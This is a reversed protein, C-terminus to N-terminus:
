AQECSPKAEKGLLARKREVGWRYGSLSGDNRVVRHCPIIVALANAGCAQAVARVAKPQGIKRAIDAYSRTSGAPIDRLAAWVRHQFATGRIDLPLNLDSGPAEVAAIVCAAVREFERDGGVLDANPFRDQLDRTLADADDGLLVACVGKESVAVLVEGLSCPGTAFKIRTKCGGKRYETPTMGLVKTSTEYFRGNSNFGAGYIAATVSESRALQDRVRQQRQAVAYAKPTVGTISKFLRHFHSPSLGAAQAMAALSPLEESTEILRCAKTVKAADDFARPTGNPKCRKCPRFGASEADACTPHFQVNARKAPRAPCSPRCYVGTTAVSYVFCGDFRANRATIAAWRENDTLETSADQKPTNVRQM